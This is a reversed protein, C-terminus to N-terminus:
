SWTITGDLKSVLWELVDKLAPKISDPIAVNGALGEVLAVLAQFEDETPVKVGSM